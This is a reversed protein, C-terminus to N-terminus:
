SECKMELKEQKFKIELRLFTFFPFVAEIFFCHHFYFREQCFGKGVIYVPLDFFSHSSRYCVLLLDKLLENFRRSFSFKAFFMAKVLHFGM